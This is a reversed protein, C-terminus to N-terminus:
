EGDQAVAVLNHLPLILNGKNGKVSIQSDTLTTEVGKPITVPANGIRSM